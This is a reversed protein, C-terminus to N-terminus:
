KLNELARITERLFEKLTATTEEESKALPMSVRITAGNKHKGFLQNWVFHAQQLYFNDTYFKGSNYAYLIIQKADGQAAYLKNAPFNKGAVEVNEIVKDTITMGSGVMCVEPPHFVSRNTESYIVFLFLKENKQNAYERLILNRTELIEYERETIPLDKGQWEGVTYPFKRVDVIDHDSRQRFFLKMSVVCAIALIIIVTVYGINNKNM